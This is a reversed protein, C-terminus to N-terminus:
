PLKIPLKTPACEYVYGAIRGSRTQFAISCKSFFGAYFGSEYLHPVDIVVYSGTFTSFKAKNGEEFDPTAFFRSDYKGMARFEYAGIDNYSLVKSIRSDSAVYAAVSSLVQASSGNVLGFLFEEAFVGAYVVGICLIIAACAHRWEKKVAGIIAAAASVAYSLAIFLFSVYFGLPGSGGTLPTLVNWHGHLVRSFWETKPYLAVVSQPLFNLALLVLAVVIGITVGRRVSKQPGSAFAQVLSEGCLIALPAALLMLYKDIAGHSFDFLVIYFLLGFVIYLVFVLHKRLNAKWSWILPVVLLPSLYYLAKVSQVAIQTVDRGGDTFSRAHELMFAISFAPYVLQVLYLLGIYAVVFACGAGILAASGKWSFAKRQRWLLDCAIAGIVLIFSLKVLFGALLIAFLILGWTQREHGTKEIFRDYCYIAALFFFPLLAGDVDAMLSGLVSYFCIVYLFLSVLAVPVGSRRRMILYLHIASAAFLLLPILLLLSGPM